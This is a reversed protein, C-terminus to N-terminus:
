ALLEAVMRAVMARLRQTGSTDGHREVAEALEAILAQAMAIRHSKNMKGEKGSMGEPYRPNTSFVVNTTPNKQFMQANPSGAGIRGIHTFTKNESFPNPTTVKKRKRIQQRHRFPNRM